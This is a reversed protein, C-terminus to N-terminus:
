RKIACTIQIWVLRAYRGNPYLVCRTKANGNILGTVMFMLRQIQIHATIEKYRLNHLVTSVYMECPTM